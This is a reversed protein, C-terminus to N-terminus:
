VAAAQCPRPGPRRCRLPGQMTACKWRDSAPDTGGYVKILRPPNECRDCVVRTREARDGERLTDEVRRRALGVDQAFNDFHPEHDWAWDVSLRLFAAETGITPRRGELPYGRDLRWAESWFLLTQLPPGWEDDDQSFDPPTVDYGDAKDALYKRELGDVQLRWRHPDAVNGLEVMALGGPMLPDNASHVAQTLLRAHLEVIVRLNSKVKDSPSLEIM